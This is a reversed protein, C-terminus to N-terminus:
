LAAVKVPSPAIVSRTRAEYDFPQENRWKDAAERTPFPGVRRPGGDARYDFEVIWTESM